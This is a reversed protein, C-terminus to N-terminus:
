DPVRVPSRSSSTQGGGRTLGISLLRALIWSKLTAPQGESLGDHQPTGGRNRKGLWAEGTGNNTQCRVGRDRAALAVWPDRGRYLRATGQNVARTRLSFDDFGGAVRM